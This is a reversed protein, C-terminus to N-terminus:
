TGRTMSRRNPRINKLGAARSGDHAKRASATMPSSRARTTTPFARSGRRETPNSDSTAGGRCVDPARRSSAIADRGADAAPAGGGSDSLALTATSLSAIGSLGSSDSPHRARDQPCGLPGRADDADGSRSAVFTADSRRERGGARARRLRLHERRERPVRARRRVGRALRERDRVRALARTAGHAVRRPRAFPGGAGARRRRPPPPPPRRRRPPRPRRRNRRNRRRRRSGPPTRRRRRPRPRRTGRRRRPTPPAPM